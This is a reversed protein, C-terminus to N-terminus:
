KESIGYRAAEVRQAVALKIKDWALKGGEIAIDVEEPTTDESIGSVSLFFDASEYNGMNVKRALSVTVTPKDSM